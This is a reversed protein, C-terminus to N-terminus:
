ARGGGSGAAGLRALAADLVEEVTIASMCAPQACRPWYQRFGGMFRFCPSCSLNKYIVTHGAGYPGFQSPCTPGFLGISPTGVAAALHLPASDNGIFLRCRAILAATERLRLRGVASVLPAKSLRALEGALRLDEPGGVIITRWGNGSLGEILRAFSPVPWRKYRFYRGGPHVAVWPGRGHPALFAEAREHDNRSLWIELDREDTAAGLKAAVALCYEVVHALPEEKIPGPDALSLLPSPLGTKFPARCLSALWSGQNSLGVALDFGLSRFEVMARILELGSRCIRLVDLYPAGRLIDGARPSSLVAIIAGPYARRLAKLAPIAFITDGIPAFQLVLIKHIEHSRWSGKDNRM